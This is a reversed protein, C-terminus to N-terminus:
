SLPLKVASIRQSETQAPANPAAQLDAKLKALEVTLGGHKHVWWFALGGAVTAFAALAFLKENGIIVYPLVALVLGVAALITGPMFGGLFTEAPPWVALFVGGICVLIGIVVFIKASKLKAITEGLTDKQAAGVDSHSSEKHSHEILTNTPVTFVSFNTQPPRGPEKAVDFTRVQAGAPVWLRTIDEVQLDQKADDKPNEPQQIQVAAGDAATHSANGGKTRLETKCGAFLIVCLCFSFIIKM